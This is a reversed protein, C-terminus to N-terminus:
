DSIVLIVSGLYSCGLVVMGPAAYKIKKLLKIHVNPGPQGCDELLSYYLTLRDHDTGAIGPYVYREMRDCFAQGDAQLTPLIGLQTIRSQIDETQL